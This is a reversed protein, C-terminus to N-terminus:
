ESPKTKKTQQEELMRRLDNVIAAERDDRKKIEELLRTKREESTPEAAAKAAAQIRARRAGSLVYGLEVANERDKATTRGFVPKFKTDSKPPPQARGPRPTLARPRATRVKPGYEEEGDSDPKPADQASKQAPAPPLAPQAGSSRPLAAAAPKMHSKERLQQWRRRDAPMSGFKGSGGAVQDLCLNRFSV